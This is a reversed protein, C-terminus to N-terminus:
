NQRLWMKRKYYIISKLALQTINKGDV